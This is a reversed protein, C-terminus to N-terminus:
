LLCYGFDLRGLAGSHTWTEFSSGLLVAMFGDFVFVLLWIGSVALVEKVVLSVRGDLVEEGM